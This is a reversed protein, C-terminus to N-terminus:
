FTSGYHSLVLHAQAVAKRANRIKTERKTKKQHEAKTLWQLNTYHLTVPQPGDSIPIIHDLQLDNLDRDGIRAAMVQAIVRLSAGFLAEAEPRTTYRNFHASLRNQVRRMVAEDVPPFPLEHPKM